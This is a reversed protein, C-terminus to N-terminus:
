DMTFDLHNRRLVSQYSGKKFKKTLNHCFKSTFFSDDSKALEFILNGNGHFAYDYLLFLNSKKQMREKAERHSEFKM